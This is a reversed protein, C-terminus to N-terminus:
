LFYFFSTELIWSFFIISFDMCKKFWVENPTLFVLCILGTFHRKLARGRFYFSPPSLDGKIKERVKFPLRHLIRDDKMGEQLCFIIKLCCSSCFLNKNLINSLGGTRTTSPINACTLAKKEEGLWWLNKNEKIRILFFLFSAHWYICSRLTSGAMGQLKQLDKLDKMSCCMEDYIYKRVGKCDKEKKFGLGYCDCPMRGCLYLRIWMKCVKKSDEGLGICGLCTGAAGCFTYLVSGLLCGPIIGPIISAAVGFCSCCSNCPGCSFCSCCCCCSSSNEEKQSEKNKSKTKTM